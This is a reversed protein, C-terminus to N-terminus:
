PAAPSSLSCNGVVVRIIVADSRSRISSWGGAAADASTSRLRSARPLQFRSHGARRPEALLGANIAVIRLAMACAAGLQWWSPRVHPTGSVLVGAIAGTVSFLFDDGAHRGPV